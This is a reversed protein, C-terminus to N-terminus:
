HLYLEKLAHHDTKRSTILKALQCVNSQKEDKARLPRYIAIFNKCM